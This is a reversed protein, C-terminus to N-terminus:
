TCKHQHEAAATGRQESVDSEQTHGDGEAEGDDGHGVAYAMDAAGVEVGGDREAHPHVAAHTKLLHQEVPHALNHTGDDGAGHQQEDPLGGGVGGCTDEGGVAEAGVVLPRAGPRAASIADAAQM